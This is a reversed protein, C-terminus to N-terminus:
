RRGLRKKRSHRLYEMPSENGIASHRRPHNYYRMRSAVVKRLTEFERIGYFITGNEGKFHGNFSEMEPNEKAGATAFSIRVGDRLRVDHLWENGTYVPDQDSHLIVRRLDVGWERLRRRAHRWATLATQTDASPGLCWGVAVKSNDDIIPMLRAKRYGNAYVIETFDTYLVDFPETHTINRVLNVRGKMERIARRIASPRPRRVARLVALDWTKHLKRLVKHNARIGRARLEARVRRYGYHPHATAIALLPRRLRRHRDAYSRRLHRRYHWTAKALHVARLAANVGFRPAYREVLEM